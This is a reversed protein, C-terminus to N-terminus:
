VVASSCFFLMCTAMGEKEEKYKERYRDETTHSIQYWARECYWCISAVVTSKCTALDYAWRITARQPDVPDM